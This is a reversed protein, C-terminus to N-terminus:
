LNIHAAKLAKKITLSLPLGIIIGTAAQAINGPIDKAAIIFAYSLTAEKFLFFKAILAGFFYYAAIMFIGSVLFAFLNNISNSGNYSKRYAISGAIFGMVGKIIFTFPAWITYGNLLDFLAMGIAASIAGKRRGLLIAGVFIMSDGLHVVGMFSPIHIISTMVFTIAAMLAIQIIGQITVDRQKLTLDKKYYNMRM